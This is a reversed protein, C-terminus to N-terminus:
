HSNESTGHNNNPHKEKRRGQSEQPCNLVEIGTTHENGKSSPEGSTIPVAINMGVNAGNTSSYLTAEGGKRFEVEERPKEVIAGKGIKKKGAPGRPM